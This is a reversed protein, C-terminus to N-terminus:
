PEGLSTLRAVVYDIHHATGIARWTSANGPHGPTPHAITTDAWGLPAGAFDSSAGIERCIDLFQDHGRPDNVRGKLVLWRDSATYRLQPAARFPDGTALRPHAVAFDGFAPMISDNRRRVLANWAAADARPFDTVEWAAAGSLDVPFAGSLFVVRRWDRQHDDMADAVLRAGARATPGGVPGLDLLLVADRASIGTSSLIHDIALAVNGPEDDMDEASLRIAAGRLQGRAHLEAADEILRTAPGTPLADAPRFVPLVGVDARVLETAALWLPGHGGGLEVDTDLFGLDLLVPFAAWSESVKQATRLLVPRVDPAADAPAPIVEILPLIAERTSLDLHRLALFEGARGKLVPVYSLDAM